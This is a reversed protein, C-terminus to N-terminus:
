TDEEIKGQEREFEAVCQRILWIIQSSRTRGYYEAIYDVKRALESNLRLTFKAREPSNDQFDPSTQNTVSQVVACAYEFSCNYFEGKVRYGSLAKHSLAEVSKPAPVSFQQMIKKKTQHQVGGQRDKLNTTYGVKVMDGFDFVYVRSM